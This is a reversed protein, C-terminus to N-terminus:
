KQREIEAMQIPPMFEMRSIARSHGTMSRSNLIPSEGLMYTRDFITTKLKTPVACAATNPTHMFNNKLSKERVCPIATRRAAAHTEPVMRPRHTLTNELFTVMAILQSGMMKIGWINKEPISTGNSSIDAAPCASDCKVTALGTKEM